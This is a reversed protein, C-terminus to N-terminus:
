FFLHTCTQIAWRATALPRACVRLVRWLQQSHLMPAAAASPLATRVGGGLGPRAWGSQGTPGVVAVLAGAPAQFKMDVLAPPSSEDWSFEGEVKVAAEGAGRPM